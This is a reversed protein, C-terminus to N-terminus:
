LAIDGAAKALLGYSLRKGSAQHIVFGKETTVETIPVNWKQAAAQRLVYRVAAGAQRFSEWSNPTSGSGGAVQRKYKNVDLPAQEIVLTEWDVDLEEAVLMPLSTKVGQGVEPNPAMITIMGKSNIKVFANPVFDNEDLLEMEGLSKGLVHFGIMLGGGALSSSRMFFRRSVKSAQATAEMTM